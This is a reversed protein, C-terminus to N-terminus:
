KWNMAAVCDFLHNGRAPKLRMLASAKGEKRDKALGAKFKVTPSFIRPPRGAQSSEARERSDGISGSYIAWLLWECPDRM